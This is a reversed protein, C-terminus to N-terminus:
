NPVSFLVPVRLARNASAADSGARSLLIAQSNAATSDEPARHITVVINRVDDEEATPSLEAQLGEFSTKVQLQDWVESLEPAASHLTVTRQVPWDANEPIVVVAPSAVFPQRRTTAVWIPYVGQQPPTSFVLRVETSQWVEDPQSEDLIASVRCQYTRKLRGLDLPESTSDLIEARVSTSGSDLDVLWSQDPESELLVIEFRRELSSEGYSILDLHTPSEIVRDGPMPRGTLEMTLPLNQQAEGSQLKVLVVVDRKGFSPPSVQIRLPLPQNPQLTSTPLEEVMSCGCSTTVGQITVDQGSQNRLWFTAVQPTGTATSSFSQHAPTAVVGLVAPTATQASEAQLTEM